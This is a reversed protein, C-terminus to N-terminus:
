GWRIGTAPSRTRGRSTGGPSTPRDSTSSRAPASSSSWRRGSRTGGRTGTSTTCRISTSATPGCASCRPKASAQMISSSRCARSTPGTAWRATSRPPSCSRTAGAAGKAFWRGIIEETAGVGLHRGYVNATDFFNIGHAIAADMISHSDQESAHPGFNMTGLCLRRSSWASGDSMRTSWPSSDVGPEIFTRRGAGPGAAELSGDREPARSGPVLYLFLLIVSGGLVGASRDLHTRTGIASPSRGSSRRVVAPVGAVSILWDLSSVRGLLRSPVLRQLVTYWIVLLM